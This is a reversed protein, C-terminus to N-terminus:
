NRPWNGIVVGAPTVTWIDPRAGNNNPGKADYQFPRGWPDTLADPSELYPGGIADKVLLQDLRDPFRGNKLAYAECAQTLPGRVQADAIDTLSFGDRTTLFGITGVGGCLFAGFLVLWALPPILWQRTRAPPAKEEAAPLRPATRPRPV